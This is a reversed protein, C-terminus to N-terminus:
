NPLTGGLESVLKHRQDGWIHLEHFYDFSVKLENSLGTEFFSGIVRPGLRKLDNVLDVYDEDGAVLLALDYNHSFAHILMERAVALDVRKEKGGKQKFIVPEFGLSRLKDRLSGEYADNGKIAGFWYSRIQKFGYCFTNKGLREHLIRIIEAALRLAPDSPKDSRIDVGIQTGIARLLNSGDIFTMLRENM